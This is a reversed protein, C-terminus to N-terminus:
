FGYTRLRELWVRAPPLRWAEILEAARDAHASAAVLDGGARAALALFADVPGFFLGDAGSSRGAYPVLTRYAHRGLEPDDLYLAAAAACPLPSSFALERDILAHM